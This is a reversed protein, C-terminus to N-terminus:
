QIYRMGFSIKNAESENKSQRQHRLVDWLM